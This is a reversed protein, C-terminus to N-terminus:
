MVSIICITCPHSEWLNKLLLVVDYIGCSFSPAASSYWDLATMYCLPRGASAQSIQDVKKHFMSLSDMLKNYTYIYLLKRSQFSLLCSPSRNLQLFRSCSPFNHTLSLHLYFFFLAISLFPCYRVCVSFLLYSFKKHEYFVKYSQSVLCHQKLAWTLFCPWPYLLLQEKGHMM